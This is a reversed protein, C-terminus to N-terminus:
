LPDIGHDLLKDLLQDISITSLCMKEVDDIGYLKICKSLYSKFADRENNTLKQDTSWKYFIEPRLNRFEDYLKCFSVMNAIHGAVAENVTDVGSPLQPLNLTPLSSM